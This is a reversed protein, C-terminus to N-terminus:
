GRRRVPRSMVAGLPLSPGSRRHAPRQHQGTASADPRGPAFEWQENGYARYWQGSEDHWEYEFCVSIRDDTFSWLEKRLRYDLEQRWKRELFARVEARGHLFEANPQAM